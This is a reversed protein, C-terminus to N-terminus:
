ILFYTGSDFGYSAMVSIMYIYEVGLSSGM